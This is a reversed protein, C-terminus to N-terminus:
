NADVDYEYGVDVFFTMNGAAIRQTHNYHQVRMHTFDAFTTDNEILAKM